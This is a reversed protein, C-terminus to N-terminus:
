TPQLQYLINYEKLDIEDEIYLSMAESINSYLSDLSFAQTVIALDQCEAIFQTEGRYIHFLINKKM